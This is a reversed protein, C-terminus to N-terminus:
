FESEKKNFQNARWVSIIDRYVQFLNQKYELKGLLEAVKKVSAVIQEKTNDDYGVHHFTSKIYEMSPQKGGVWLEKDAFVHKTIEGQVFDREEKALVLETNLSGIEEALAIMEDFDPLQISSM